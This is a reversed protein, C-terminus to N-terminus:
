ALAARAAMLDRDMQAVLDDVSDFRLTDRLRAVFELAVLHGYLDLETHDLVHAEVRRQTGDFTPNTGISIAAPYRAAGLGGGQRPEDVLWGAYVGDGPVASHAAVALNATPFGLERGRHDGHEVSGEVRHPRLLGRAAEAVDGEGVCQRLYSSSWRDPGPGGVLSVPDVVFGFQEGLDRLTDVTGAARHGFRFNAGVVVVAAHLREVLVLRAFEEPSTAALRTTFPLIVVANAGASLLLEVRHDLTSLLTPHSGPRVVESPHPDFTVAVVPVGREDARTRAQALIARHGVHLGDFVGITVVSRPWDHPVTAVGDFRVGTV